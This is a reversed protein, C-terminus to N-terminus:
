VVVDADLEDAVSHVCDLDATSTPASPSGAAEVGENHAALTDDVSDSQALAFFSRRKLVGVLCGFSSSSFTIM